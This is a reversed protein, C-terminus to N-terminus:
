NGRNDLLEKVVKKYDDAVKSKTSVISVNKMASDNAVADQFGIDNILLNDPYLLKIKERLKAYKPRNGRPVMTFLIKFDTVKDYESELDRLTKLSMRLANLEFGGTKFVILVQDSAMFTNLTVTNGVAPNDIIIYDYEDKVQRLALKLRNHILKGVSVKLNQDAVTLSENISPIIDLNKIKTPYISLKINDKPNLLVDTLDRPKVIDSCFLDLTTLPDKCEEYLKDILDLNKYGTTVEGLLLKTSNGQRDADIHLVHYGLDALHNSLSSATTTKGVGGKDSTICITKAKM